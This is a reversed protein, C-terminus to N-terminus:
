YSCRSWNSPLLMQCLPRRKGSFRIYVTSSSFIIISTLPYRGQGAQWASHPCLSATCVKYLVTTRSFKQDRGFLWFENIIETEWILATLLSCTLIAISCSLPHLIVFFLFGRRWHNWTSDFLFFLDTSYPFPLWFQLEADIFHSTLKTQM